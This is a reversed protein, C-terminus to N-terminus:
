VSCIHAVPLVILRESLGVYRCRAQLTLMGTSDAAAASINGTISETCRKTDRNSLIRYTFGNFAWCLCKLLLLELLAAMWSRRVSITKSHARRQWWCSDIFLASETEARIVRTQLKIYYNSSMTFDTSALSLTFLAVHLTLEGFGWWRQRFAYECSRHKTSNFRVRLATRITPTLVAIVSQHVGFCGSQSRTLYTTKTQNLM